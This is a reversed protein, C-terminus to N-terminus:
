GKVDVATMVDHSLYTHDVKLGRYTACKSNHLVYVTTIIGVLAHVQYGSDICYHLFIIFKCIFIVSVFTM